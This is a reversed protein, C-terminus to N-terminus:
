RRKKKESEESRVQESTRPFLSDLANQASSRRNRDSVGLIWALVRQRLGMQLADAIGAATSCILMGGPVAVCLYGPSYGQVLHMGLMAGIAVGSGKSLLSVISTASPPSQSIVIEPLEFARDVNAKLVLPDHSLLDTENQRQYEALSIPREQTVWVTFESVFAQRSKFDSLPASLEAIWRLADGTGARPKSSTLSDLFASRVADADSTDFSRDETLGIADALDAFTAKSYVLPKSQAQEFWLCALDDYANGRGLFSQIVRYM